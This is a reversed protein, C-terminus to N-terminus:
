LSLPLQGPLASPLPLLRSITSARSSGSRLPFQLELASNPPVGPHAPAPSTGVTTMLSLSALCVLSVVFTLLGGIMLWRPDFRDSGKGALFGVLGMVAAGPALIYGAQITNFDFIVQLMLAVLFNAGMFGANYLFVVVSAMTFAFHRYLRLNVVPQQVTFQTLLFLSFFIAAIAWLSLIYGSDWGERQGQSMALLLTCKAVHFHVCKPLAIEGGKM